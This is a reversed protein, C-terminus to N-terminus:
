LLSEIFKTFLQGLIMKFMNWKLWQFEYIQRGMISLERSKKSESVNM